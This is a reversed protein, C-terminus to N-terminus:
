YNYGRVEDDTVEVGLGEAIRNVFNFYSAILAIDLIDRDSFGATRLTDVDARSVGSPNRTLQVGYDVMARERDSLAATTYDTTVAQVRAEDKWYANLGEAHHRTCYECGNTASVVTALLEREARKLGSRGFLIALYLDMHTQMAQPHLSQVRMINSLKGRAAKISDYAAELEGEAADERIVDIWAM